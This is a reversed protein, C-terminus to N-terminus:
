TLSEPADKRYALAPAAVIFEEMLLTRRALPKTRTEKDFIDRRQGCPQARLNGRWSM